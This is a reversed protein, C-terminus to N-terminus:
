IHILSLGEAVRFTEANFIVTDESIQVQAMQAEVVAEKLLLADTKLRISDLQVRRTEETVTFNRYTDGYGVFSVKVAYNGLPLRGEMEFRGKMDTTAGTQFTSDPMSLLQVTAAIVAEATEFDTVDGTVKVKRDQAIAMSMHCIALMALFLKKKM